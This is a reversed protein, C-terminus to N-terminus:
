ADDDDDEDASAANLRIQAIGQEAEAIERIGWVGHWEGPLLDHGTFNIGGAGPIVGQYVKAYRLDHARFSHHEFNGSARLLIVRRDTIVYQMSRGYFSVWAYLGVVALVEFIIFRIPANGLEFVAFCAGSLVIWHLVSLVRLHALPKGSWQITEGDTLIKRTVHDKATAEISM